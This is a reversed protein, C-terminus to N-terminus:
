EATKLIERAADAELHMQRGLADLSAFKEEDRTKKLFEVDHEARYLV